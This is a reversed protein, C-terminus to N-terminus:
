KQFTMNETKIVFKFNINLKFAKTILIFRRKVAQVITMFTSIQKVNLHKFNLFFYVFGLAYQM